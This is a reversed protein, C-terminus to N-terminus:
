RLRNRVTEARAADREQPPLDKGHKMMLAAPQADIILEDIQETSIGEIMKETVGLRVNSILKMFEDTSIRRATQLIGLSRFIKEEINFNKVMEKRGAREQEIFQSVIGSLNEIATKENIGLTIQNSLQYMCAQPKSGEGGFGRMTLGIKSISSSIRYIAGSEEIAPLHLMVSARMATGLNTPCATLYGLRENFAYDLKESLMDDTKDALKYAEEISFGPTISQIRIHDEEGIMISVPSKRSLLLIRGKRNEAFEPSIVHKEVYEYLQVDNLEDLRVVEFENGAAEIVADNLHALMEATMKEPFPMGNLNRALRVRSSIVVDGDNGSKKYWDFKNM